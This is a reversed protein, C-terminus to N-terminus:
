GLNGSMAEESMEGFIEWIGRQTVNWIVGTAFDVNPNALSHSCVGFTLTFVFFFVVFVRLQSM